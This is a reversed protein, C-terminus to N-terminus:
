PTLIWVEYIGDDFAQSSWNSTKSVENELEISLIWSYEQIPDRVPIKKQEHINLFAEKGKIVDYVTMIQSTM